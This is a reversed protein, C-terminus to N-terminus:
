PGLRCDAQGAGAATVLEETHAAPSGAKQSLEIVMEVVADGMDIVAAAYAAM